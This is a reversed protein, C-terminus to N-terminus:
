ALKGSNFNMIYRGVHYMINYYYVIYPINSNYRHTHEYICLCLARM